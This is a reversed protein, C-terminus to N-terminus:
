EARVFIISWTETCRELFLFNMIANLQGGWVVSEMKQLCYSGGERFFGSMEEYTM